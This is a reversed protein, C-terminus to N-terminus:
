TGPTARLQAGLWAGYIFVPFFWFPAAIALAVFEVMGQAKDNLRMSLVSALSTALWALVSSIILLGVVFWFGPWYTIRDPALEPNQRVLLSVVSALVISGRLFTHMSKLQGLIPVLQLLFGLVVLVGTLIAIAGPTNMTFAWPLAWAAGGSLQLVIPSMTLVFVITAFTQIFQAVLALVFYSAIKGLWADGIRFHELLQTGGKSLIIFFFAAVYTQWHALVSLSSILSKWFM